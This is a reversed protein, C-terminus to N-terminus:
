SQSQEREELRERLRLLRTSLVVALITVIVAYVFLSWVGSGKPVFENILAKVAENWALAAVLGFATTLLTLTETLVRKTEKAM